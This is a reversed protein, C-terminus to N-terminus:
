KRVEIHFVSQKPFDFCKELGPKILLWFSGRKEYDFKEGVLSYNQL